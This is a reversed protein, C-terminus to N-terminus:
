FPREELPLEQQPTGIYYAVALGGKETWFRYKQIIKREELEALARRTSTTVKRGIRHAVEAPTFALHGDEYISQVAQGVLQLYPRDNASSTLM